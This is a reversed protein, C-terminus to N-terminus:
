WDLFYDIGDGIAAAAVAAHDSFPYEHISVDRLKPSDKLQNYVYQCNDTMKFTEIFAKRVEYDEQSETRRKVPFQELAGYSIQFAPKSTSNSSTSTNGTLPGLENLIYESNWFLAPSASLFTDFLDPRQLLAYLVFLGGFSHGYLADRSFQANPFATDKVWPRLVDDIFLIFNDANSPVGPAPAPTCNACVPPQFDYGRNLSYPSDPITDPYGISVVITDPQTVEVPRRRRFNETASMGLANGDLVYRANIDSEFHYLHKHLSNRTFKPESTHCVRSLFCHPKLHFSFCPPFKCPRSQATRM